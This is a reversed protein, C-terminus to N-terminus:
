FFDKIHVVDTISLKSSLFEINEKYNDADFEGPLWKKDKYVGKRVLLPLLNSLLKEPESDKIILEADIAEGVTLGNYKTVAVYKVGDIVYDNKKNGVIEKNSWDLAENIEAFEKADLVLLDKYPIDVIVSIIRLGFELETDYTEKLGNLRVIEEFQKVTIDDWSTPINYKTITDM